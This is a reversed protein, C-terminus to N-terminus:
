RSNKLEIYISRFAKNIQMTPTTSDKPHWVVTGMPHVGRVVSGDPAIASEPGKQPRENASQPRPPAGPRPPVTYDGEDLWVIVQDQARKQGGERVFGKSFSVLSVKVKDNDILVKTPADGGLRTDSAAAIALPSLVGGAVAGCVFTIAIMSMTRKDIM